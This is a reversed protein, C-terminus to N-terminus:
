VSGLRNNNCSCCRLYCVSVTFHLLNKCVKGRRMKETRQSRLLSLIKTIELGIWCWRLPWWIWLKDTLCLSIIYVKRICFWIDFYVVELNTRLQRWSFTLLYILYAFLNNVNTIPWYDMVEIYGDVTIDHREHWPNKM